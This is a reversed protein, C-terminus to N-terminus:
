HFRCSRVDRRGLPVRTQEFVTTKPSAGSVGLAAFLQSNDAKNKGDNWGRGSNLFQRMTEEFDAQKRDKVLRDIDQTLTEKWHLVASALIDIRDDHRLAGAKRQIKTIQVQTEKDKIVNSSIVLRHNSMVPELIDCIRTEKQGKVKYGQVDVAGCHEGVVPILLRTFMGDGFNDEVRVTKIHYKNILDCIATLATEDYGGPVGGLEHVVLYGHAKSLVCIATEDDGRGSPDVYLVRGEYPLFQPSIWMPRYVFDGHVGYCPISKDAEARAWVVREPFVDPDVDFVILDALCLPYTKKDVKGTTLKVNLAFKTPGIKALIKDLAEQSRREPDTAAGVELDMYKVYDALNLMEEEDNPDPMVGPFRIIPYAEGLKFYISDGNQPTGLIIVRGGENRINEIETLKQLLKERQAPTECNGEVEIDDLILYFAHSGTIQGTIGRAFCSLDQRSLITMSGINFGFANDKENPPPILHSMYPVYTLIKRVQSIFEIAKQQTASIVMVNSDPDRLLLWSALMACLTSKGESRQAQLQMDQRWNQLSEAIAYQMPSPTGLGLHKFCAWVHNRFDEVMEEPVSAPILARNIRNQVEM